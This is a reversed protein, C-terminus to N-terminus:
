NKLETIIDILKQECVDFSLNELIYERPKYNELKSIFLNYINELENIEYFYEGCREDWYPIVTGYIDDYNQGYEEKMSKVEWVLLPVDCSLAEQLAFGQSEHRGVWIGYKCEQLFHIYENEDYRIDYNFIKCSIKKYSLFHIIMNYLEPNRTKFYIFVKEREKIPKINKFKETDVGFPLPKIKINDCFPNNKWLSCVWESPQIYIVNDSRIMDMRDKKPFVDFHPGFIFKVNPYNNVNIPTAPLYVCDFELLNIKNLISVDNSVYLTINKYNIMSNHNKHHMGNKIYLIKM